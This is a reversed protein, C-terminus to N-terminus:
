ARAERALWTQRLVGIESVNKMLESNVWARGSPWSSIPGNARVMFAM